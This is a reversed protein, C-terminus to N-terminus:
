LSSIDNVVHGGVGMEGLGALRQHFNQTQVDDIIPYWLAVSASPRLVVLASGLTPQFQAHHHSADTECAINRRM